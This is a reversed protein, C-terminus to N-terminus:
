SDTDGPGMLIGKTGNRIKEFIQPFIKSHINIVPTLSVLSVKNVPTLSVPSLVTSVIGAQRPKFIFVLCFNLRCTYLPSLHARLLIHFFHM